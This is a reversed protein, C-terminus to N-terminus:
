EMYSRLALKKVWLVFIGTLILNLVITLVSIALAPGGLNYGLAIFIVGAGVEGRTFMGISLALRESFKRDRYFFVPFLKGINSLLSVILVHLAIVGWPMMEQSGTVSYEGAQTEAFNVGIFHPMSMGVLFMFLFSIGTSVNREMPTDIEKHKMIMGLIFAPLLVEIHISGEEGYLGKSILYLSQTAVFVLTSYFLIAKWDQRWNYKSLQRWGFLLLLFVILVVIILQWRLGIMMIQLPIMLLITDLDDFIALVQIKKYMWSAKLGIAALMTFLIGASTPAAFRSLLLNEKWAEWSNWFEPPLLVFVYYLAILLWPMAATAMAIFYDETYSKWRSKDVEFERGVNIMIFGLCIYLLINAVTKVAGYGSGALVPLFQSLFLGIILFVSFSLVKRM